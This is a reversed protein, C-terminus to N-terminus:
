GWCRTLSRKPPPLRYQACTATTVGIHLWIGRMARLILGKKSLHNTPEEQVMSTIEELSNVKIAFVGNSLGQHYNQVFIWGRYKQAMLYRACPINHVFVNQWYCSQNQCFKVYRFCIEPQLWIWHNMNHFLKIQLYHLGPSHHYLARLFTVLPWLFTKQLVLLSSM